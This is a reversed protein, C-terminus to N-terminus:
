ILLLSLYCTGTDIGCGALGVLLAFFFITVGAVIIVASIIAWSDHQAAVAYIISAIGSIVGILSLITLNDLLGLSFNSVNAMFLIPAAPWLLSFGILVMQVLSFPSIRKKKQVPEALPAGM